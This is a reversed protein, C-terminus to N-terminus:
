RTARPRLAVAFADLSRATAARRLLRRLREADKIRRVTQQVPRPVHEFRAALVDLVADARGETRGQALGQARGDQLALREISTIYPVNREKALAAVELQFPRALEAPLALVWDLFRFLELVDRRSYAREFLRKVLGLKARM